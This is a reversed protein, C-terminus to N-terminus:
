RFIISIVIFGYYLYVQPHIYSQCEVSVVRFSRRNVGESANEIKLEVEVMGFRKIWFCCCEFTNDNWFNKFTMRIFNGGEIQFWWISKDILNELYNRCSLCDRTYIDKHIHPRNYMDHEYHCKVFKIYKTTASQSKTMYQM